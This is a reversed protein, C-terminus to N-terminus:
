PVPAVLRWAQVRLGPRCEETGDITRCDRALESEVSRRSGDAGFATALARIVYRGDRAPGGGDLSPNGDTEAPDDGVWVVVYPATPFRPNVASALPSYLFLRWSPNAAGWPREASSATRQADSCGAMSGCTLDNTLRSLDIVAGPGLLRTGGAVGDVMTSRLSGDLVATWDAILTLEHIALEMGAEAANLLGVADEHNYDAMRATSTSLALGFGLASLMAVALLAVIL